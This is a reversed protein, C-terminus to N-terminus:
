RGRPATLRGVVAAVGADDTLDAPLVEASTGYRQELEAATQELRNRDRAVLVLHHGQAALQRAFEAGLGASAGTILATTPTNM